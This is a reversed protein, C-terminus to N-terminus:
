PRRFPSPGVTMGLDSRMLDVLEAVTDDLRRLDKSAQSIGDHDRSANSYASEAADVVECAATRIERSALLELAALSVLVEAWLELTRGQRRKIASIVYDPSPKAPLLDVVLLKLERLFEDLASHLRAYSAKKETLWRREDEAKQQRKM